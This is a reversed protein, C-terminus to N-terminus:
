ALSAGGHGASRLAGFPFERLLRWRGDRFEHLCMATIQMSARYDSLEDFAADLDAESVDHAITVHPHYPFRSDVGLDGSRVQSELVECASIGDAVAVFVVPSVPRFSGSGRLVLRFPTTRDAVDSLHSLVADMVDEDVDIPALITIHAPMKGADPGFRCRVADLQRGFPEPIEVTVGLTRGRRGEPSM